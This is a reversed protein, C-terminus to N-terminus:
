NAKAYCQRMRATAEACSRRMRGSSAGGPLILIQGHGYGMGEILTKSCKGLGCSVLGGGGGLLFVGVGFRWLWWWWWGGVWVGMGFKLMLVSPTGYQLNRLPNM